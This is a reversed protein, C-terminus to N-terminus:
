LGPERYKTPSFFVLLPPLVAYPSPVGRGASYGAGINTNRVLMLGPYGPHIIIM